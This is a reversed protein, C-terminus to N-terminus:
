RESLLDKIFEDLNVSAACCVKDAAGYFVILTEDVVVMGEPFVVNPVDGQKEYDEIFDWSHIQSLKLLINELYSADFENNQFEDKSLSTILKFLTELRPIKEKNQPLSGMISIIQLLEAPNCKLIESKLEELTNNMYSM